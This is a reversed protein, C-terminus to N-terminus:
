GNADREGIKVWLTVEGAGNVSRTQVVLERARAHYRVRRGALTAARADPYSKSYWEGTKRAEAILTEIEPDVKPRGGRKARPPPKSAQWGTPGKRKAM